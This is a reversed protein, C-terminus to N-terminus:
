DGEKIRKRAIECYKNSIEFGIYKRKLKKSMKATTGSGMFPDLVVDGKNSFAEIFDKALKDPFTAPHETKLSKDSIGEQSSSAYKIITGCCKPQGTTVFKKTIEGNTKRVGGSKQIGKKKPQIKMHEKNFYNPNEGKIFIPIYEHDVRFRKNWWAGPTGNRKYICTEWLDLKTKECWDVITKFSTLSKRGDKTQDQIVMVAIGGDVLVRSFQKGLEMLDIDWEGEYERLDDYPPSTVILDITNDPILERMGKINDQCHIVNTEM